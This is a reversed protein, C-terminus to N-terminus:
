HNWLYYPERRRLEGLCFFYHFNFWLYPLGVCVLHFFHCGLYYCFSGVPQICLWYIKVLYTLQTDWLYQIHVTVQVYIDHILTGYTAWSTTALLSMVTLLFSMTETSKNRVVEIKHHTCAHAFSTDKNVEWALMHALSLCASQFIAMNLWTRLYSFKIM